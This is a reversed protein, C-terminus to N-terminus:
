RRELGSLDKRLPLIQEYIRRKWWPEIGQRIENKKIGLLRAVVCGASKVLRHTATVRHRTTYCLVENVQEVKEKLQRRVVNWLNRPAEDKEVHESIEMTLKIKM